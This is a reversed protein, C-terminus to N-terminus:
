TVQKMLSFELLCGSCWLWHGQSTRRSNCLFYWSGPKIKNLKFTGFHNALMCFYKFSLVRNESRHAQPFFAYATKM